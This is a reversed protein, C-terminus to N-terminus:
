RISASSPMWNMTVEAAMWRWALGMAEAKEAQFSAIRATGMETKWTRRKSEGHIIRSCERCEERAINERRCYGHVARRLAPAQLWGDPWNWLAEAKAPTKAAHKGPSSRRGTGSQAESQRGSGTRHVTGPSCSRARAPHSDKVRGRDSHKPPGRGDERAPLSAIRASCFLNVCRITSTPLPLAPGILYLAMLSKTSTELRVQPSPGAGAKRKSRSNKTSSPLRTVRQDCHGIPTVEADCQSSSVIYSPWGASPIQFPRNLVM